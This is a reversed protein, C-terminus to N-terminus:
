PRVVAACSVGESAAAGGGCPRVQEQRANQAYAHSTSAALDDVDGVQTCCLRPSLCPVETPTRTTPCLLVVAGCRGREDGALRLNRKLMCFYVVNPPPPPSERLRSLHGQQPQLQM